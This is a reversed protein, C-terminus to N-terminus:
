QTGKKFIYHILNNLVIAGDPHNTDMEPHFQFGYQRKGKIEIIEYGDPSVAHCIVNPNNKLSKIAFLHNEIVTMISKNNFMPHNTSLTIQLDGQRKIPLKELTLGYAAGLIQFGYCIGIVPITTSQILKLESRNKYVNILHGDGLIVLQYRNLKVTDLKSVPIVTMDCSEFIHKYADVSATGNDIFLTRIKPNQPCILLDVDRYQPWALDASSGVGLTHVPTRLAHGVLKLHNLLKTLYSRDVANLRNLYSEQNVEGTYHYSYERPIWWQDPTRTM